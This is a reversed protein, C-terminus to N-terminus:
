QHPVHNTNAAKQKFLPNLDRKPTKKIKGLQETVKCKPPEIGVQTVMLGGTSEQLCIWREGNGEARQNLRVGAGM